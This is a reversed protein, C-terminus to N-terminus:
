LLACFSSKTSTIHMCDRTGDKRDKSGGMIAMGETSRDFDLDVKSKYGMLLYTMMKGKGKILTMGRPKLLFESSGLQLYTTKSVHVRGPVGHSEMRSATNVTDGFLCYRPMKQGVVGAVVPGTHIGVRIQVPQKTNPSLVHGASSVMDLGTRAIRPAHEPTKEPVGSVVMYADGITEVKYVNHTSTLDDFKEFLDNLVGVIDMPECEASMTTFSVIDSFLVSAEEFKEADVRQGDRLQHAVRSPLIQYLLEDTRKKEKELENSLKQLEVTTTDLRKSIQVETKAKESIFFLETVIDDKPFTTLAVKNNMLDRLSAFYPSGIFALNTSNDMQIFQGKFTIQQTDNNETNQYFLLTFSENLQRLVEAYSFEVEPDILKFLANLRRDKFNANCLLKQMANGCGRLMFDEDVILHYPVAKHFSSSSIVLESIDCERFPCEADDATCPLSPMTREDQNMQTNTFIEIVAHEKFGRPDHVLPEVSLVRPETDVHFFQIGVERVLGVAIHHLGRGRKSFMHLYVHGNEEECMLKMDWVSGANGNEENGSIDYMLKIEEYIEFMVPRESGCIKATAELLRETLVDSYQQFQMFDATEDSEAMRPLEEQGHVVETPVSHCSSVGNDVKELLCRQKRYRSQMDFVSPITNSNIQGVRNDVFTHFGKDENMIYRLIIKSEAWFTSEDIEPQLEQRLIVDMKTALVGETLEVRPITQTKTPVLRSKAM